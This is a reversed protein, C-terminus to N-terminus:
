GQELGERRRAGHGDGGPHRAVAAERRRRSPHRPPRRRARLVEQGGGELGGLRDEVALAALHRPQVLARVPAHRHHQHRAERVLHRGAARRRLVADLEDDPLRHDHAPRAQGRARRRAVRHGRTAQRAPGARRHRRQRHRAPAQPLVRQGQRQLRAPQGAVPEPHAPPEGRGRPGRRRVETRGVQAPRRCLGGTGPGRGGGRRRPRPQQPRVDPLQPDLRAAGVPCAPGHRGQGRVCRHGRRRRRRHLHRVPVPQHQRVLVRDPEHPATPAALGARLGHAPLGHDAAGEGPRRLAGLRRRQPGPVRHDDHARADGPLDPRLPVLPQHRRGHPDDRSRLHRHREAGVGPGPARGARGARLHDGGAVRPHRSDLPRRLRGALHGADRPRQVGYQALM